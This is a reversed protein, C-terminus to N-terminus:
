NCLGCRRCTDNVKITRVIHVDKRLIMRTDRYFEIFDDNKLVVANTRGIMIPHGKRHIRVSADNVDFSAAFLMNRLKGVNTGEDVDINQAERVTVAYATVKIGM